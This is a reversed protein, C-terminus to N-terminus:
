RIGEAEICSALSLPDAVNLCYKARPRTKNSATEKQTHLQIHELNSMLQTIQPPM